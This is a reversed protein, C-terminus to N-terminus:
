EHSSLAKVHISLYSLEVICHMYPEEARRREEDIETSLM